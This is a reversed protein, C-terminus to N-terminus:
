RLISNAIREAIQKKADKIDEGPHSIAVLTMEDPHGSVSARAIVVTDYDNSSSGFWGQAQKRREVYQQVDGVERSPSATPSGEPVPPCGPRAVTLASCPLPIPPGFGESYHSQSAISNILRDAQTDSPMYDRSARRRALAAEDYQNGTDGLPPPNAGAAQILDAVQPDGPALEALSVGPKLIQQSVNVSVTLISDTSQDTSRAAASFDQSLVEQITPDTSFAFLQANHVVQLRGAQKIEFSLALGPVLLIALTWMMALAPRHRVGTISCGCTANM